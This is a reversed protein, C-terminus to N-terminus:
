IKEEEEEQEAAANADSLKHNPDPKAVSCIGDKFAYGGGRKKRALRIDARQFAGGTQSQKMFYLHALFYISFDMQILHFSLQFHVSLYSFTLSRLFPILM